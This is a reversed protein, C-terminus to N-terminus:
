LSTCPEGPVVAPGGSGGRRRRVPRAAATTAVERTTPPPAPSPPAARQSAVWSSGVVECCDAAALVVVTASWPSTGATAPETSDTACATRGLTTFISTVPSWPDPDPEPIMRVLSPVMRVLLWTTSMAAPPAAENLTDKASPVVASASIRPVSGSVSVATMLAVPTESRWAAVMPLDALRPTPSPTTAIPEGKPRSAVTVLPM